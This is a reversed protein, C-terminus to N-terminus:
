TKQRDQSAANEEAFGPLAHNEMNILNDENLLEAGTTEEGKIIYKNYYYPIFVSNSVCIFIFQETINGGLLIQWIGYITTYQM